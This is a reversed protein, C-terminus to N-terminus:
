FFFIRVVDRKKACALTASLAPMSDITEKFLIGYKVNAMGPPGAKENKNIDHYSKKRRRKLSYFFSLPSLKCKGLRKIENILSRIQSDMFEVGGKRRGRLKDRNKQFNDEEQQAMKQAWMNGVGAKSGSSISPSSSSSVSVPVSPTSASSLSPTSFSNNNNNKNINNNNNNSKPAPFDYDYNKKVTTLGEIDLGRTQLSNELSLDIFCFFSCFPIIFLWGGVLEIKSHRTELDM